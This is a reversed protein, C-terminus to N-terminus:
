LAVERLPAAELEASSEFSLRSLASSFCLNGSIVSPTPGFDLLGGRHLIATQTACEAVFDLDHTACVVLGGAKAYESLSQAILQRARESLGRTPEDLLLLQPMKVLALLLALISREGISLSHPDRNFYIGMDFLELVSSCYDPFSKSAALLALEEGVTKAVFTRHSNPTTLSILASRERSTLRATNQGHFSIHGRLPKILGSILKLLTTKGAGNEGAIALIDSSNAFLSVSAISSSQSDRYSFSVNSLALAPPSAFASSSREASLNPSHRISVKNGKAAACM